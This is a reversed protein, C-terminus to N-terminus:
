LEPAPSLSMAQVNGDFFHDFATFWRSRLQSDAEPRRRCRVCECPDDYKQVNAIYLRSLAEPGDRQERLFRSKTPHSTLRDACLGRTHEVPEKSWSAQLGHIHRPVEHDALDVQKLCRPTGLTPGMKYSQRLDTEYSM